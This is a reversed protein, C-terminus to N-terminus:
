SASGRQGALAQCQRHSRPRADQGAGHPSEGAGAPGRGARADDREPRRRAGLGTAPGNGSSSGSRRATSASSPEYSTRSSGSTASISRTRTVRSSSSRRRLWPWRPRTSSRPRASSEAPAGSATFRGSPSPEVRTYLVRKRREGWVDVALELGQRRASGDQASLVIPAFDLFPVEARLATAFEDVLTPRRPWCIGSTSRSCWGAAEEVVFGAVHADQSTLGQFADIILIAVDARDWPKIARLTSYGNRTPDAPWKGPRRM